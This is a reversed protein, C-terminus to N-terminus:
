RWGVTWGGFNRCYRAWALNLNKRNDSRYIKQKPLAARLARVAKAAAKKAQARTDFELYYSGGLNYSKYLRYKGGFGYPRRRASVDSLQEFINIRVAFKGSYLMSYQNTKFIETRIVMKKNM